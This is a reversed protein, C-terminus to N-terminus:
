NNVTRPFWWFSTQSSLLALVPLISTKLFNNMKEQNDLRAPSDMDSGRSLTSHLLWLSKQLSLTMSHPSALKGSYARGSIKGYREYVSGKCIPSSNPIRRFISFNGPRDYHGPLISDRGSTDPKRSLGLGFTCTPRHQRWFCCANLLRFPTVHGQEQGLEDAPLMPLRFHAWLGGGPFIFRCRVPASVAGGRGAFTSGLTLAHTVKSRPWPDAPVMGLRGSAAGAWRRGSGLGSATEATEDSFGGSVSIAPTRFHCVKGAPATKM